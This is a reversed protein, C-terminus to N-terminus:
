PHKKIDIGSISIHKTPKISEWLETKAQFIEYDTVIDPSYIPKRKGKPTNYTHVDYRFTNGNADKGLNDAVWLHVTIETKGRDDNIIKTYEM